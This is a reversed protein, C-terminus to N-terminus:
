RVSTAAGNAFELLAFKRGTKVFAETLFTSNGDRSSLPGHSQRGIDELGVRYSSFKNIRQGGSRPATYVDANQHVTDPFPVVPRM